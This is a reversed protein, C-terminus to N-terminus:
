SAKENENNVEKTSQSKGQKINVLSILPLAMGGIANGVIAIVIFLFADFSVMHSVGFYGMDAISHEFGSLIFVPIAYVIGSISKKEKFVYVAVYMLVGCFISRIFTQYWQQTLKSNCMQIAKEKMEPMALGLLFSCAVVGIFNGFLGLLLVSFDEKTHSLPIFGVKGTYLSFGKYCIILLAVSFLVSGVVKNESALFIACGISIMIGASVGDLIKKLM